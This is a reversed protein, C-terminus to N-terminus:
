VFTYYLVGTWRGVKSVYWQGELLVPRLRRGPAHSHDSFDIWVVM